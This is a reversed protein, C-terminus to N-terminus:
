ITDVHIHDIDATRRPHKAELGAQLFPQIKTEAGNASAQRVAQFFNVVTQMQEFAQHHRKLIDIFDDANNSIGVVGFGCQNGCETDSFALGLRDQFQFQALDGLKFFDFNTCFLFRQGLFLL